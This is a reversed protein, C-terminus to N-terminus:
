PSQIQGPPGPSPIQSWLGPPRTVSAPTSVPASPAVLGGPPVPSRWPLYLGGNRRTRGPAPGIAPRVAAPPSMLHGARPGPPRSKPQLSATASTSPRTRPASRLQIAAQAPAEGSSRARQPDTDRVPGHIKGRAPLAAGSKAQKEDGAPSM